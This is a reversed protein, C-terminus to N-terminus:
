GLLYNLALQEDWNYRELAETALDEGFGMELLTKIKEPHGTKSEKAFNETWYKATQEFLKKDTKYQKAM